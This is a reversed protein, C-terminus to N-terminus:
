NYRAETEHSEIEQIITNYNDFRELLDQDGILYFEKKARTVAVNLLNPEKCAWEAAKITSADTGTVFYVIDAEKGQFTHVTGISDQVWGKYFKEFDEVIPAVTEKYSFDSTLLLISGPDELLWAKMKEFLSPVIEKKVKDKIISFPTIIFVSPYSYKGEIYVEIEKLLEIFSRKNRLEVYKQMLAWAKPHLTRWDSYFETRHLFDEYLQKMQQIDDLRNRIAELLQFRLYRTIHEKVNKILTETQEPVYQRVTTTGQTKLWKGIGETDQKKDDALVM